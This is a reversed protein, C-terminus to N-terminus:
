TINKTQSKKYITNYKYKIPKTFNTKKVTDINYMLIQHIDIRMKVLIYM